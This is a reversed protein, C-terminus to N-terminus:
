TDSHLCFVPKVLRLQPEPPLKGDRRELLLRTLQDGIEINNKDITALPPTPEWQRCAAQDWYNDYGVLDVDKNPTKGLIRLGAAVAGINGDTVVMIADTMAQGLVFPAMAGAVAQSNGQHVMRQDSVAYRPELSFIAELVPLGAERMARVYGRQRALTWEHREVPFVWHQRIHRRGRAILWRTLEYAGAEHDPAVRDFSQCWPENGFVVTRVKAAQAQRAWAEGTVGPLEIEPVIVGAPSSALLRGFHASDFSPIPLLMMRLGVETAARVAAATVYGAWGYAKVGPTMRSLEGIILLSDQLLPQEAQAPRTITRIRGDHRTIQGEDELVHLARQVTAVGVELRAALDREAPVTEGPQWTGEAIWQRLMRLAKARPRQSLLNAPKPM